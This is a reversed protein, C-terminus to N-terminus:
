QSRRTLAENISAALRATGPMVQRAPGIVGPAPRAPNPAGPAPPGGPSTGAAVPAVAPLKVASGVPPLPLDGIAALARLAAEVHYGAVERLGDLAQFTVGAPPLSAPDIDRNLVALLQAGLREGDRVVMGITPLLSVPRSHEAPEGIALHQSEVADLKPPHTPGPHTPGPGTSM